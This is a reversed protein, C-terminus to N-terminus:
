CLDSNPWSSDNENTMPRNLQAQSYRLNVTPAASSPTGFDSLVPFIM